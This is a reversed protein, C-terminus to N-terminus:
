FNGRDGKWTPMARQASAIARGVGRARAREFVMM